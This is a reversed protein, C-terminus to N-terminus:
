NQSARRLALALADRGQGATWGILRSTLSGDAAFVFRQAFVFVEVMNVPGGRPASVIWTQQSKGDIM